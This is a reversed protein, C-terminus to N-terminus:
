ALKVVDKNKLFQALEPAVLRMTRKARRKNRGGKM